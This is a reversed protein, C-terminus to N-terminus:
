SQAITARFPANMKKVTYMVLPTPAVQNIFYVKIENGALVEALWKAAKDSLFRRDYGLVFIPEAAQSGPTHQTM